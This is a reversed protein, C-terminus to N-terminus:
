SVLFFARMEASKREIWSPLGADTAESGAVAHYAAEERRFFEVFKGQFEHVEEVLNVDKAVAALRDFQAGNSRM